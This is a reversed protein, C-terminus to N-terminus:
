KEVSCDLKSGCLPGQCNLRAIGDGSVVACSQLFSLVLTSHGSGYNKFIPPFPVNSTSPSIETVKYETAIM